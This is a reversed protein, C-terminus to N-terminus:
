AVKDEDEDKYGMVDKLEYRGYLFSGLGILFMFASIPVPTLWGAAFSVVGVFGFLGMLGVGLPVWVGNEMLWQELKPPMWRAQADARRREVRDQWELAQEVGSGMSVPAAGAPLEADRDPAAGPVPSKSRCEPCRVWRGESGNPAKFLHGCACQFKISM